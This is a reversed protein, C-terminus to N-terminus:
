ILRTEQCFKVAQSSNWPLGSSRWIALLKGREEAGPFSQLHERLSLLKPLASCSDGLSIDRMASTFLEEVQITASLHHSQPNETTTESTIPESEAPARSTTKQQDAASALSGNRGPTPATCATSSAFIALLLISVAQSYSSGLPLKRASNPHPFPQRM